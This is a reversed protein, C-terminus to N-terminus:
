TEACLRGIEGKEEARTVGVGSIFWVGARSVPRGGWRAEKETDHGEEGERPIQNTEEGWGARTGKESGQRIEVDSNGAKERVHRGGACAAM